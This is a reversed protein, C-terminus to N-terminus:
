SAWDLPGVVLVEGMGRGAAGDGVEIPGLSPMAPLIPCLPKTRAMCLEALRAVKRLHSATV